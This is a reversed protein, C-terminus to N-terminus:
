DLSAGVDIVGVPVSASGEVECREESVRLHYTCKRKITSGSLECVEAKDKCKRTIEISGAKDEVEPIFEM